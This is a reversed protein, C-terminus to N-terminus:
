ASFEFSVDINRATFAFSTVAAEFYLKGSVGAYDCDYALSQLCIILKMLFGKVPFEFQSIIKECLPLSSSPRFLEGCLTPTHQSGILYTGYSGDRGLGPSFCCYAVAYAGRLPSLSSQAQSPCINYRYNSHYRPFEETEFNKKSVSKKM